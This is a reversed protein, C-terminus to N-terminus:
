LKFEKLLTYVSGTPTLRSKFLALHHVPQRPLLPIREFEIVRQRPKIVRGLTIHPLFSREELEIGLRTLYDELTGVLQLLQKSPHIDIGVIRPRHAPFAILQKFELYFAGIDPFSIAELQPLDIDELFYLTLHLQERKMWRVPAPCTKKLHEVNQCIENKLQENLTIAFFTRMVIDKSGIRNSALETSKHVNRM